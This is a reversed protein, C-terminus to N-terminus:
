SADADIRGACASLIQLGCPGIDKIDDRAVSTLSLQKTRGILLAAL